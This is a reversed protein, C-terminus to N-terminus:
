GYLVVVGDGNTAVKLYLSQFDWEQGVPVEFVQQDGPALEIPQEDAAASFGLKVNGTNLTGDLAKQALVTATRFTLATASLAVPAAAATSTKLFQLPTGATAVISADVTGSFVKRQDRAILDGAYVRVTIDTATTNKFYVQSFRDLGHSPAEYPLGVIAPLDASNDLRVLLDTETDASSELVLFNTGPWDMPGYSGNAAVTFTHVQAQAKM